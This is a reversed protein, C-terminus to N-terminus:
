DEVSTALPKEVLSHKGAELARQALAAHTGPPTAIVVADISDLVEDLGAALRASPFQAAAEALREPRGDVISVDVGPTSSLVRVHKSGWYGYGVGAIRDRPSPGHAQSASRVAVPDPGQDASASPSHVAQSM